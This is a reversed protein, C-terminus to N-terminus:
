EIIVKIMMTTVDRESIDDDDDDNSINIMNKKKNKNLLYCAATSLSLIKMNLSTAIKFLFKSNSNDLLTLLHMEIHDKLAPIIYEESLFLLEILNVLKSTQTDDYDNNNDNLTVDTDLRLMGTYLFRVIVCLHVYSIDHIELYTIKSDDDDGDNDNAVEQTTQSRQTELFRLMATLKGCQTIVVKDTKVATNKNCDDDVAFIYVDKGKDSSFLEEKFNLMLIASPTVEDIRERTDYDSNSSTNCQSIISTTNITNCWGAYPHDYLVQKFVLDTSSSGLLSQCIIHYLSSSNNSDDNNITHYIKLINLNAVEIKALCKKKNTDTTNITTALMISMWAYGKRRETNTNTIDYCTNHINHILLSIWKDDDLKLTQIINDDNLTDTATKARLIKCLLPLRTLQM